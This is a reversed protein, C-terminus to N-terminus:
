FTNPKLKTYHKVCWELKMVEYNQEIKKLDEENQM